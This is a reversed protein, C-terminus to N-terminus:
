KGFMEGLTVPVLGKDGLAALMGPLADLTNYGGLHMLVISGPRANAAMKAVLDATTPGGDAVPRWDIMDVDWMVLYKWGAAGVGAKVADNYGGYPPRFWPKTSGLIPKIATETSTLEQLMQDATITRFDPHDWSHNGVDFLEPHQAALQLAALGQPTTTGSKGTPFLTAHVNHDILWQVIDVAPDLRGGMDFTLAIEPVTRSGHSIVTAAAAPKATATPGPTVVAGGTSTPAPTPAPTGTPGPSPTPPNTDDVVQGPILVLVWGLELRDPNYSESEPDLSPYTGRNWWAISRATTDFRRAISNLTDGSRVVYSTFSAAPSPTPRAFTATPTPSPSAAAVESGAPTGTPGPVSGGLLGPVILIGALLLVAIGLAAALWPSDLTRRPPTAPRRQPVTM